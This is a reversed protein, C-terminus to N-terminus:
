RPISIVRLTNIQGLDTILADTLGDALYEQQPDGSLNELPLVALSQLRPVGKFTLLRERVHGVNFGGALALLLVLSAALWAAWRRWSHAQLVVTNGPVVQTLEGSTNALAHPEEVATVPAIFRYGRRSLTEIFRPNTPSDGVATRIKNVAKTLNKDFDVFTGEPWLRAQLEALCSSFGEEGRRSIPPAPFRIVPSVPFDPVPSLTASPDTTASFCLLTQPAFHAASL